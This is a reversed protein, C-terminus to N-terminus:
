VCKATLGGDVVLEAGTVYKSSDSALYAAADAVDWADGMHGMPCQADRVEMMKDVSAACYIGKLLEVLMGLHLAWSSRCLAGPTPPRLRHHQQSSHGLRPAEVTLLNSGTLMAGNFRYFPSNRSASRTPPRLWARRASQVAITAPSRNM